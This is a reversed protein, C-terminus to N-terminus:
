AHRLEQRQEEAHPAESFVEGLTMSNIIYAQSAADIHEWKKDVQLFDPFRERWGKPEPPSVHQDPAPKRAGFRKWERADSDYGGSNFWSSPYPCLDRGDSTYRYSSPWSRVAEAFQNTKDLLYALDRKKLAHSIARKADEPNLKRPYLAYVQEAEPLVNAKKREKTAKGLEQRVVAKWEVETLRRGLRQAEGALATFLRDTLDPM